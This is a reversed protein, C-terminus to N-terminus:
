RIDTFDASIVNHLLYSAISTFIAKLGTYKVCQIMYKQNYIVIYFTLKEIEEEM